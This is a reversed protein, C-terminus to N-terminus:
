QMVSALTRLREPAPEVSGSKHFMLPPQNAAAFTNAVATIALVAYWAVVSQDFYTIGFFAVNNALICCGVAWLLLADPKQRAKEARKRALGIRKYAFVFVSIFLVFTILGGEIGANVFANLSDWMDYGWKANNQTGILWWEGFKHVFTDILMARHWGSGGMVGGLHSMLFWVSSKMVLQLTVLTVVITWRFARLHRRLPWLLFAGVGMAITLVPTSSACTVMMVMAALIAVAALMRERRGECWLGLFLPVLMAGVSGAIIAHGFPGGARIRGERVSSLAQAGLIAFPNHGTFHEMLMFPAIVTVLVALVRIALLADRKDRILGRLLFYSGLTVYLFSCRNLFASLDHWLLSFTVANSIAWALFVKDLLTLRIRLDRRVLYRVGGALLLLRFFFLHLPGIVLKLTYPLLMAGGLFAVVAYRRPLAILLIISLLLVLIALPTVFTDVAGGFYYNQPMDYTPNM